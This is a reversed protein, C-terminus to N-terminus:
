AVFKGLLGALRNHFQESTVNARAVDDRAFRDLVGRHDDGCGAARGIAAQVNRRDGVIVVV